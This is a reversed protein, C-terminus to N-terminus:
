SASRSTLALAITRALTALIPTVERAVRQGTADHELAAFFASEDLEGGGHRYLALAVGREAPTLVRGSSGPTM